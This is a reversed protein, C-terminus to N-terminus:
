LWFYRNFQHATVRKEVPPLEMYDGYKEKLAEDYGKMICVEMDEFPVTIVEDLVRKHHRERIGYGLYALNSYYTADEWKIARCMEIHQDVCNYNSLAIWPIKIIRKIKKSITKFSRLPASAWRLRTGRRWVKTMEGIRKEADSFSDETGDLPFLDIWVGKKRKTWCFASDDVYTNRMDCVRAYAIFVDDSNPLERSMVEYGKSSKYIRIFRDYDPRPMAIDIDNDWPIFGKHRVAGLLTGGQLTYKIGNALCFEHIDKLIDMSIQQVELVTMEKM